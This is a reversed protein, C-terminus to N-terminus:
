SLPWLQMVPAKRRTYALKDMPQHMSSVCSQMRGGVIRLAWTVKNSKITM